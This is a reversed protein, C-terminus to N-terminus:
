KNYYEYKGNIYKFITGQTAKELLDKPFDIEEFETELNDTIDLLFRHEDLEDTVMYLHGEKRHKGLIKNQKEIIEKAMNKIEERLEQTAVKNAVYRDNEITLVDNVRAEKPMDKKNITIQEIKGNKVKLIAYVDNDYHRANHRWYTRKNDKVFYMAENNFNEEAYKIIVEDAKFRIANENGRTVKKKSLIQEVIPKEEINIDKKPINELYKALEKMFDQVFVKEKLDNMLGNVLNLDM